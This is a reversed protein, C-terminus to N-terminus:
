VARLSLMKNGGWQSVSFKPSLPSLTRAHNRLGAGPM